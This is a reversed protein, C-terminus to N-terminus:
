NAYRELNRSIYVQATVYMLSGASSIVEDTGFRVGEKASFTQRDKAPM